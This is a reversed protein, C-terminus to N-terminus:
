AQPRRPALLLLGAVPTGGENRITTPSVAAPGFGAEALRAEVYHRDHKYRGTAHLAFGEEAQAEVTFAFMGAPMLARFVAALLPRVEGFYMVVDTAIILDVRRDGPVTKLAATLEAEILLDYCGKAEALELMRPSIDVGALIRAHPRFLPGCLGTGCGADLIRLGGGRAEMWPELAAHIVGPTGYSLQDLLVTEFRTSFADFHSRLYEPPTTEPVAEGSAVAHMFRAEINDPFLVQWGRAIEISEDRHGMAMAIGLLEGAAAHLRQPAPARVTLPPLLGQEVRPRNARLFALRRIAQEGRQASAFAYADMMEGFAPPGPKGRDLLAAAQPFQRLGLLALGRVYHLSMGPGDATYSQAAAFLDTWRREAVLPLLDAPIEVHLPGTSM